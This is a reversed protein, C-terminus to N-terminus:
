AASGTREQGTIPHESQLAARIKTAETMAGCSAALCAVLMLSEVSLRLMVAPIGPIMLLGVAMFSAKLSSM